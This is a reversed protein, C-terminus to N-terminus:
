SGEHFLKLLYVLEDQKLPVFMPIDCCDMTRWLVCPFLVMQWLLRLHTVGTEGTVAFIEPAWIMLVWTALTGHNSTAENM